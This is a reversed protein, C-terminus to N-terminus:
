CVFHSTILTVLGLADFVGTNSFIVAGLIKLTLKIPVTRCFAVKVGINERADLEGM